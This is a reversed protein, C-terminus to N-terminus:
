VLGHSRIDLLLFPESWVSMQLWWGHLWVPGQPPSGCPRAATLETGETHFSLFFPLSFSLPPLPPSPALHTISYYMHPHWDIKSTVGKLAYFTLPLKWFSEDRYGHVNQLLFFAWSVFVRRAMNRVWGPRPSWLETHLVRPPSAGGTCFNIQPLFGSDPASAIFSTCQFGVCCGMEVGTFYVLRMVVAKCITLLVLAQIM